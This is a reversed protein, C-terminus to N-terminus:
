TWVCTGPVVAQLGLAGQDRDGRQREVEPPLADLSKGRTLTTVRHGAALLTEAIGLGIFKMGGLILVRM